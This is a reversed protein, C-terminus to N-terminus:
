RHIRQVRNKVIIGRRHIRGAAKRIAGMTCLSKRLFGAPANDMRPLPESLERLDPEKSCAGVPMGRASKGPQDDKWKADQSLVVRGIEKRDAQRIGDGVRESRNIRQHHPGGHRGRAKGCGRFDVHLYNGFLSLNVGDQGAGDQRVALM